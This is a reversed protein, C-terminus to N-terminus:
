NKSKVNRMFNLLPDMIREETYLRCDHPRNRFTDLFISFVTIDIGPTHMILTSGNFSFECGKPVKFQELGRAARRLAEAYIHGEGSSWTEKELEEAADNIKEISDNLNSHISEKQEETALLIAEAGSDGVVYEAGGKLLEADSTERSKEFKAIEESTYQKPLEQSMTVFFLVSYYSFM